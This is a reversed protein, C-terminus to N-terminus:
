SGHLDVFDEEPEDYEDAADNSRRGENPADDTEDASPTAPM